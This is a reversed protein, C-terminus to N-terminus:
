RPPRARERLTTWTLIAASTAGWTATCFLWLPTVAAARLREGANVPLRRPPVAGRRADAVGGGM